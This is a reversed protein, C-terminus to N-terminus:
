KRKQLGHIKKQLLKVQNNLENIMQQESAEDQSSKTKKSYKKPSNSKPSNNKSINKKRSNNSSTRVNSRTTSRTPSRSPSRSRSRSRSSKNKNPTKKNPTRAYRKFNEYVNKSGGDNNTRSRQIYSRDSDSDNHESDNHESDDDSDDPFDDSEDSSREPSFDPSKSFKKGYDIVKKMKDNDHINDVIDDYEEEESDSVARHYKTQMYRSKVHKQIDDINEQKSLSTDQLSNIYEKLESEKEIPLIWGAGLRSRTTWKGGLRQIADDHETRVGKILFNLKSYLEYSIGQPTMNKSM